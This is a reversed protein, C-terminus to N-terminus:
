HDIDTYIRYSNDLNNYGNEELAKKFGLLNTFEYGNNQLTHSPPALTKLYNFDDYIIKSKKTKAIDCFGNDSIIQMHECADSCLSALTNFYTFPRSVLLISKINKSWLLHIMSTGVETIIHTANNVLHIVEEMSLFTQDIDIYGFTNAINVIATRNSLIAPSGLSVNSNKRLFLLKKPYNTNNIKYLILTKEVLIDHFYNNIMNETINSTLANAFYTTGTNIIKESNDILIYDNINLLKLLFTVYVSEYSIILVLDPINERLLYFLYILPYMYFMTHCINDATHTCFFVKKNITTTKTFTNAVHEIAPYTYCYEPKLYMDNKIVDHLKDYQSKMLDLNSSIYVYDKTNEINDTGPSNIYVSNLDNRIHNSFIHAKDTLKVIRFNELYMFTENHNNNVFDELNITEYNIVM